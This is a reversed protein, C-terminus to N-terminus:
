AEPKKKEEIEEMNEKAQTIEKAREVLRQLLKEKKQRLIEMDELWDLNPFELAHFDELWIKHDFEGVNVRRAMAEGRKWVTIVFDSLEIIRKDLTSISPLTLISCIQRVRCAQWFHSLLVNIDSLSRRNDAQWGEDFLLASGEPLSNYRSIYEYIDLASKERANWEPDFSKALWVGLTSKGTGTESNRSVILIKLDRGEELRRRWFRALPSRPHLPTFRNPKSKGNQRSKRSLENLKKISLM